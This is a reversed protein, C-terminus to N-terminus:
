GLRAQAKPKRRLSWALPLTSLMLWAGAPLPVATPFAYSFGSDNSLTIGQAPDGGAMYLFASNGYNASNGRGNLVDSPGWGNSIMRTFAELGYTVTLRDGVKATFTTEYDKLSDVNVDFDNAVDVIQNFGNLGFSLRGGGSGNVDLLVKISVTAGNPLVSSRVDVRDTVQAIARGGISVNNGGAGQLQVSTSAHLQGLSAFARADANMVFNPVASGNGADFGSRLTTVTGTDVLPSGLHHAPQSIKVCESSTTSGATCSGMSVIVDAHVQGFGHQTILFAEVSVAAASANLALMMLSTAISLEKFRTVM